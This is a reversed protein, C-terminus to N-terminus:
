ILRNLDGDFVPLKFRLFSSLFDTEKRTMYELYDDEIVIGVAKWNDVIGENALLYFPNFSADDLIFFRRDLDRSLLARKPVGSNKYKELKKTDVVGAYGSTIYDMNNAALTVHGSLMVGVGGWGYSEIKTGPKYLMTSIEDHKSMSLTKLLQQQMKGGRLDRDAHSLWHVKHLGKFFAHDANMKWMTKLSRADKKAAKNGDEDFTIDLEPAKRTYDVINYDIDKSAVLFSKLDERLVIKVFERLKRMDMFIDNMPLQTVVM